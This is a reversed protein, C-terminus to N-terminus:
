DYRLAVMPDVGAAKRAPLWGALMAVFALLLAAVVFVFPDSAKVGYLQTEILRGLLYAVVLGVALGTACMLVIERLIMWSVSGSTAGLTMRIGIERTRRAVVYAMVGYLGLAALLAALLGICLSFVTVLRDTFALENVDTQLTKLDYIPVNPDLGRVVGRLTTGLAAPDSDTRVYFTADGAHDMQAYPTLVFPRVASRLDTSKADAMVGVIEIDTKTGSGRGWGFHLGVPDRGAFFRRAMADNIIAVKQSTATDSENFERGRKLPIGLAALYNPDVSNRDVDTNEDESARYGEATINTSANSNALIPIESLSVSRVGPLAAINQRMRQVLDEERALEYASLQPSVSFELVHETKIGLDQGELNRLSHAFFGAAALLVATLAVQGVMLVKRLRVNNTSGTTGSAHEKLTTNISSASARLAPLFGFMVGTLLTLGIAFLLVRPDLVPKLGSAGVSEPISSVIAGLTGEAILLGAVGGAFALLLSETMLQRVLRWRGAGLVQRLAIERQRAESRAVLLSALNACAILLVLGVMGMLILLPQKADAQLIQRGRAGPSLIMKKAVYEKKGRESMKLSALDDVLFAHYTPLIGAEAKERTLGPKLRGILSIWFNRHEMLDDDAPMLVPKETVPIFVDPLQGIQVGTFGQQSVGVVTLPVNNVLIQKNLIQSNSGFHQSWYGYSLVAVPNANKATEDDNAFVRGLAPKVGLVQFYNGSVLEGNAMQSEGQGAMNIQIPYRALLGSFVENTDRLTKYEPYSFSAGSDGDSHVHGDLPGPSRLVVLQEPKQVPLQRLLVQDTLSFMATNAGIGLALTLVAILTFAPNQALNRLAHRVDQLLSEM